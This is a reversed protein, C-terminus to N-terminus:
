GAMAPEVGAVETVHLVRSLRTIRLMRTIPAPVGTLLMRRGQREARRHGGLLVGLGAADWIELGALDVVLDGPADDVARHLVDRVDTISRADLRGRLSLRGRDADVEVHM